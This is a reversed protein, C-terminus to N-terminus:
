NGRKHTIRPSMKRPLTSVPNAFPVCPMLSTTVPASTMLRGFTKDPVPGSANIRGEIGWSQEEACPGATAVYSCADCKAGFTMALISSNKRVRNNIGTHGQKNVRTSFITCCFDQLGLQLCTHIYMCLIRMCIYMCTHVYEACMCVYMYTHIYVLIHEYMGVHM